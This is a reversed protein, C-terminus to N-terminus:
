ELHSKFEVAYSIIGAPLGVEGFLAVLKIPIVELVVVSVKVELDVM